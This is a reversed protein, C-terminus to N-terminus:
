AIWGRRGATRSMVVLGVAALLVLTQLVVVSPGALAAAGEMGFLSIDQGIVGVLSIVLLMTAWRKKLILGLSGLAGGWVALATAGVSWAPRAAYLAQQAESLKAIDEPTLTVDMLYAVCGLVNWLLAVVAVPMYWKPAPNM